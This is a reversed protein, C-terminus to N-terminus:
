ELASVVNLEAERRWLRQAELPSRDQEDTAGVAKSISPSDISLKSFDQQPGTNQAAYGWLRTQAKFGWGGKLGNKLNLEESFIYSPLWLNPQVNLRWSDFHGSVEGDPFIHLKFKTYHDPVFTGSFRVIAYDQDEVWIRGRFRGQGAGRRPEVDFMLCRVEGLFERGAYAFLYHQKDFVAPDVFAEQLFGAPNYLGIVLGRPAPEDKASVLPKVAVGRVGFQAQGLFYWDRWLANEERQPKRDQIYTEILPHLRSIASVEEHERSVVRSIVEDTAISSSSTSSDRAPGTPPLSRGFCVATSCGLVLCFLRFMIRM